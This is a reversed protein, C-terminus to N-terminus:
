TCPTRKQFSERLKCDGGRGRASLGGGGRDAGAGIAHHGPPLARQRERCALTSRGFRRQVHTSPLTCLPQLVRPCPTAPPSGFGARARLFAAQRISNPVREKQPQKRAQSDEARHVLRNYKAPISALGHLATYTSVVRALAGRPHEDSCPRSGAAPPRCTRSPLPCSPLVRCHASTQSSRNCTHM